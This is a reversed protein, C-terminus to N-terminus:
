NNSSALSMCVALLNFIPETIRLWRFISIFRPRPLGLMQRTLTKAQADRGEDSIQAWLLCIERTTNQVYYRALTKELKNADARGVCRAIVM